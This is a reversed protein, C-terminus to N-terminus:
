VFEVRFHDVIEGVKLRIERLDHISMPREVDSFSIALSPAPDMVVEADPPPPGDGKIRVLDAQDDGPQSFRWERGEVLRGNVRIGVFIGTMQMQSGFPVVIYGGDQTRAPIGFKGSRLAKMREADRSFVIVSFPFGPMPTMTHGPVAVSPHVFRHKDVNNLHTLMSLPHWRSLKIGEHTGLQYPQAAKIFAADPPLVGKIGSWPNRKTNCSRKGGSKGPPNPADDYIPFQSRGPVNGRLLILQYLLNDLSSRLMHAFAGVEVGWLAPPQEDAYSVLYEDTGAEYEISLTRPTNLFETGANNLYALHEDARRLKLDVGDLNPAAM